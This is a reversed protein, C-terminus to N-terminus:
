EVHQTYWGGNLLTFMFMAHILHLSQLHWEVQQIRYASIRLCSIFMYYATHLVSFISILVNLISAAVPYTLTHRMFHSFICQYRYNHM